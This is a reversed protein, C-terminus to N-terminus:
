PARAGLSGGRLRRLKHEVLERESNGRVFLVRDLWPDLLPLTEGPLPGWTLDGCSVILDPQEREVEALVAALATPNGHADALAAVRM